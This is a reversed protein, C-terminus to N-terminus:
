CSQRLTLSQSLSRSDATLRLNRQMRGYGSDSDITLNITCEGMRSFGCRESRQVRIRENELEISM